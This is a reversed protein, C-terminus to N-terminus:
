GIVEATEVGQDSIEGLSRRNIDKEVEDRTFAMQQSRERVLVAINPNFQQEGLVETVIHHEVLSPRKGSGPIYILHCMAEFNPLISLRNATEAEVDSYTRRLREIEHYMQGVGTTFKPMSYGQEGLEILYKEFDELAQWSDDEMHTQWDKGISPVASKASEKYGRSRLVIKYDWKQM